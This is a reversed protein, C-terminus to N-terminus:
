FRQGLIIEPWYQLILVTHEGRLTATATHGGWGGLVVGPVSDASQLHITPM